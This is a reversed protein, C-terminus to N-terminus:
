YEIEITARKEASEYAALMVALTRRNDQASCPPEEGRDLAGLIARMLRGTARSFLDLPDTAIKKFKQGHYLRAQGGLAFDWKLFPRRTGGRIGAALEIGGGLHTEICGATGDLQMDLYREPGRSLRDLVIQAVRDGTFELQILNLYDPGGPRGPKPMRATIAFPDEDFFFRCLDFVHTGFEKCTRQSDRGRWGQETVDTTYFTQHASLFVLDGFAPTGIRQKAEWHINMCRFENNVLVWREVDRSLACIKTAQDVTEVFPKECFVHCGARLALMCLEFHSTPPTVVALIDPKTKDLLEAASSFLPFPFSDADAAPDHGGVIELNDIKAYAPLHINKAAAGLGVIAITKRKSM